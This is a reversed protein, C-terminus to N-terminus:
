RTYAFNGVPGSNVAPNENQPFVRIVKMFRGQYYENLPTIIVANASGSSSHIFVISDAVNSIVIGMHGVRKIGKNTGTFLILDGPKADKTPVSKGINTFDVSSRPVDIHFHNFVYNIFGSCDFGKAPDMCAYQYPVGQLTQAFTVVEEPNIIGTNIRKVSTDDYILTDGAKERSVLPTDIKIVVERRADPKECGLMLM